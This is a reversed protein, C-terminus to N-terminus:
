RWFSEKRYMGGLFLLAALALFICFVTRAGAWSLQDVDAFGVFAALMAIILFIVALRVM